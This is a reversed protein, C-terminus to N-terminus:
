LLCNPLTIMFYKFCIKHCSYKALYIFFGLTLIYINMKKSFHVPTDGILNRCTCSSCIM